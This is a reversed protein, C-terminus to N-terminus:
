NGSNKEVRKKEKWEMYQGHTLFPGLEPNKVTQERNKCKRCRTESCMQCEICDSCKEKKCKHRKDLCENLMDFHAM